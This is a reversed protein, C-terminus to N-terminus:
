GQTPLIMLVCMANPYNPRIIKHLDNVDRQRSACNQHGRASAM